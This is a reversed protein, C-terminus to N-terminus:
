CPNPITWSTSFLYSCDKANYKLKPFNVFHRFLLGLSIVCSGATLFFFRADKFTKLNFIPTSKGPTSRRTVLLTSVACLITSSIGCIRVAWPFGVKTFLYRLMIPYLVGGVALHMVDTCTSLAGM